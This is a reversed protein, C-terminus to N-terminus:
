LVIKEPDAPGKETTKRGQTAPSTVKRKKAFRSKKAHGAAHLSKVDEM